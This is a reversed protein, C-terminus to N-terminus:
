LWTRPMLSAAVVLAVLDALRVDLETAADELARMAAREEVCWRGVLVSAAHAGLEATISERPECTSFRDTPGSDHRVFEAGIRAFTRADPGHQAFDPLEESLTGAPWLM